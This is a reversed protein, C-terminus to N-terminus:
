QVEAMLLGTVLESEELCEDPVEVRYVRSWVLPSADARAM